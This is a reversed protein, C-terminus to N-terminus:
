FYDLIIGTLNTSECKDSNINYLEFINNKLDKIMKWNSWVVSVLEIEYGFEKQSVEGFFTHDDPGSGFLDSGSIGPMRKLGAMTIM